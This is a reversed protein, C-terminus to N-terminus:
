DLVMRRYRAMMFQYIGYLLLGAGVIALLWPGYPQAELTRLAGDLGRAEQPDARVAAHMLFVGIISFTVGRAILGCRGARITWTEETPSMRSTELYKRFKVRYGALFQSLGFGLIALGVLAVLWRGFPQSLLEATMSQENAGEAGPRGEAIRAAALALSIHLVASIGYGVRATLGQVDKGKRDTDHIAQVFRWIAYGALGVAVVGLLFSGFPQEGLTALASHPDAREHGATVASKIALLGVIFYVLGQAAFGLRGLRVIWTRAEADLRATPIASHVATRFHPM